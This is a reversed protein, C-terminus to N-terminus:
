YKEVVAGISSAKVYSQDKLKLLADKTGTVVVGIIFGDKQRKKILEYDSKNFKKLRKLFDSESKIKQSSMAQGVKSSPDYIGFLFQGFEPDDREYHKNSYSNVWYWTQHVSKPLMQKVENLTYGKDFSIGLEIYKDNPFEKLKSLDNAYNNYSLQPVYFLMEKEGNPIHIRTNKDVITSYSSFSSSEFGRLGFHAEETNWPIVKDEVVKYIESKVTGKLFGYNITETRVITNPAKMVVIQRILKAATEAGLHSTVWLNARYVIFVILVCVIASILITRFLTVRKAKKLTKNLSKDNFISELKEDDKDKM